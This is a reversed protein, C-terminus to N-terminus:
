DFVHFNIPRINANPHGFAYRDGGMDIAEIARLLINVKFDPNLVMDVFCANASTRSCYDQVCSILVSLVARESYNNAEQFRDPDSPENLKRLIQQLEGLSTYFASRLYYHKAYLIFQRQEYTPEM